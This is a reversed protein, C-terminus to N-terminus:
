WQRACHPSLPSPTYMRLAANRMSAKACIRQARPKGHGSPTLKLCLFFLGLAALSGMQPEPISQSSFTIDDLELSTNGDMPLPLASIRLEAALGAFASIDGGFVIYNTTTSLPVMSIVQGGLTVQFGNTENRLDPQVEMRISRADAPVLGTQAIMTPVIFPGSVVGAQIVASYYGDLIRIGNGPFTFFPGLISINAAGLSVTNHWAQTVVSTGFYGTWGPLADSFREFQAVGPNLFPVHASEFDLNQFANQGRVILAHGLLSLALLCTTRM